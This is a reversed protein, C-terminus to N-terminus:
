NQHHGSCLIDPYSFRKTNMIRIKMILWFWEFELGVFLRAKIKRM